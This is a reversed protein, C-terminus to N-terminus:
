IGLAKRMQALSLVEDDHDARRRLAIQYDEYEELYLELAKKIFYSKSRESDKSVRALKRNLPDDLRISLVAM